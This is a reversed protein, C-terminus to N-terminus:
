MEVNLGDLAFTNIADLRQNLSQWGSAQVQWQPTNVDPVSVGEVLGGRYVKREKAM